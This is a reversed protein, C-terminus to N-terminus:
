PRETLIANKLAKSCAMASLDTNIHNWQIMVQSGYLIYQHHSLEM